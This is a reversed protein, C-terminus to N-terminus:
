NSWCSGPGGPGCGGHDDDLSESSPPGGPVPRQYSPSHHHYSLTSSLQPSSAAPPALPPPAVPLTCSSPICMANKSTCDSFESHENEAQISDRARNAPAARPSLWAEWAARPGSV